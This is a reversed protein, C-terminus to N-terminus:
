LTMSAKLSFILLPDAKSIEKLLVIGPSIAFKETFFYSGELKGNLNFQTDGNYLGAAPGAVFVFNTRTGTKYAIGGVAKLLSYVPYKYSYSSATEKRGFYFSVGGGYVFVVKNSASSYLGFWKNTRMYEMGVGTFHTGAFDGVPFEPGLSILNSKGTPKTLLTNTQGALQLFLLILFILFSLKM